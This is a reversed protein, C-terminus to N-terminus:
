AWLSQVFITRGDGNSESSWVPAVLRTIGDTTLAAAVSIWFPLTMLMVCGIPSLTESNPVRKVLGTSVAVESAGPPANPLFPAVNM